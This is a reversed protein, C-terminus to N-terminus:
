QMALVLNTELSITFVADSVDEPSTDTEGGAVRVLCSDSAPPPVTWNHLGDSAPAEAVFRWSAGADTSHFIYIIHVDSSTWTIDFTSGVALDEGGNPTLVKVSGSPAAVIAFPQDSQDTPDGATAGVRVLCNSSLTDPVTWEFAGDNPTSSVIETWNDGGDASYTITVDDVQGVSSWTIEYGFGEPLEEGGNPSLVTIAATSAPLIAFPGDSADGVPRDEPEEPLATIRIRCADSPTEPVTWDYTGNNSTLPTILSWSAGGDTSVSIRVSEM